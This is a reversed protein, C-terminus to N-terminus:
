TTPTPRGLRRTKRILIDFATMYDDFNKELVGRRPIVVLDVGFPFSGHKLRFAERIRRKVKNRKVAKGVKRSVALGLRPHELENVLLHFILTPTIVKKSNQFVM